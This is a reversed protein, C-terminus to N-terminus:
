KAKMEALKKLTRIIKWIPMAAVEALSSHTQSSLTLLLKEIDNQELILTWGSSWGPCIRNLVLGTM